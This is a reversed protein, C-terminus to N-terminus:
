LAGELGISPITVPGIQGGNITEPNLTANLMEAVFSVWGIHAIPWKKELRFDIRYFAPDRSTTTPASAQAIASQANM